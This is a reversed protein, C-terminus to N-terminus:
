AAVAFLLVFGKCIKRQRRFYTSRFGTNSHSAVNGQAYCPVCVFETDDVSECPKQM